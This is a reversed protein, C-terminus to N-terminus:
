ESEPPISSSDPAEVETDTNCADSQEPVPAQPAFQPIPAQPIQPAPAQPPMQTQPPAQQVYVNVPPQTYPQQQYYVQQVPANVYPLVTDIHARGNWSCHMVIPQTNPYVTVNRRYAKRGITIILTHMGSSMMLPLVMGSQLQYSLNTETIRVLMLVAPNTANYDIVLNAQEDSYAPRNLNPVASQPPMPATSGPVTERSGCRTCFVFARSDDAEIPAGCKTCFFQKFM